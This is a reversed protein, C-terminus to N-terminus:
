GIMTATELVVELRRIQQPFRQLLSAYWRPVEKCQLVSLCAIEGRWATLLAGLVSGLVQVGSGESAPWWSPVQLLSCYQKVLTESAPM